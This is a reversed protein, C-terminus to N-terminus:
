ETKNSGASTDARQNASCCRARDHDLDAKLIQKWYRRRKQNQGDEAYVLQPMPHRMLVLRFSVIRNFAALRKTATRQATDRVNESGIIKETDYSLTRIVMLCILRALPQIRVPLLRM